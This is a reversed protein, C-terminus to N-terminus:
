LMLLSKFTETLEAKLFGDMQGDVWWDMWGDM